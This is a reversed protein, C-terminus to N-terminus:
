NSIMLNPPNLYKKFIKDNSILCINESKTQCILMHDFPDRHHKKITPLLEIHKPKINLLDFGAKHISMNITSKLNLNLKGISEKIAIEWLSATSVFIQNELNSIITQTKTNIQSMDNIMWWILVHTDILYKM